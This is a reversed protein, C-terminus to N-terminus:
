SNFLMTFLTRTSSQVASEAIMALYWGCRLQPLTINKCRDTMRNVSCAPICRFCGGSTCGGSACGGPFCVGGSACVGPACGGLLVGGGSACGGSACGGPFCVGSPVCGIPINEQLTLINLSAFLSM